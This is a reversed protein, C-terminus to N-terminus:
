SRAEARSDERAAGAAAVEEVAGAEGAADAEEVADEEEAADVEEVALRLSDQRIHRRGVPRQFSELLDSHTVPSCIWWLPWNHANTRM